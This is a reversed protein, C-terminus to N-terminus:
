RIGPFFKPNLRGAEHEATLIQELKELTKKLSLFSVGGAANKHGGGHFHAEAIKNVAVEGFSRFSLHVRDKQETVLVAISIKELSLAYDVLGETDGPHLHFDIADKTTISFYAFGKKSFLKLRSLISHAIFQYHRLPKNRELHYAALEIDVGKDILEAAIRHATANTNPHRFFSTDSVIGIYLCLASAPDIMHAVGMNVLMQYLLVATAPMTTDSFTFNADDHMGPHHDIIIRTAHKASQVAKYLVGLRQYLSFDLCFITDAKLVIEEIAESEQHEAIIVDQMGPLWSLSSPCVTPSVVDVQYGLKRCIRALALSSGLADSDPRQHMTILIRKTKNLLRQFRTVM